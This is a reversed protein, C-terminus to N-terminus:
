DPGAASGSGARWVQAFGSSALGGSESVYLNGDRLFLGQVKTDGLSAYDEGAQSRDLDFGPQGGLVQRAALRGFDVVQVAEHDALALRQADRRGGVTRQM